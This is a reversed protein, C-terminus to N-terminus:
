VPASTQIFWILTRGSGECYGRLPGRALGRLTREARALTAVREEPTETVLPPILECALVYTSVATERSIALLQRLIGGIKGPEFASAARTHQAHEAPTSQLFVLSGALSRAQFTWPTEPAPADRHHQVKISAVRKEADGNILIITDFGAPLASSGRGRSSDGYGAHHIVAVTCRFIEKLAKVFELLYNADIAKNEDLGVMMKHATDLVILRVPRGQARARVQEIFEEKEGAFGIVPARGVYFGSADEIGHGAKWARRRQKGIEQEGELAGYFTIGAMPQLTCWPTNTSICLAMGQTLFSKFEGKKGVILVSAGLPLLTPILWTTEDGKEQEAEDKFHFRSRKSSEGQGVQELIRWNEITSAPPVGWAGAENQSYQSANDVIRRLEQESWPPRCSNNWVDWLLRFGTGPTLGCNLIECALQYTRNNGGCGAIAVDGRGVYASLLSAARTVNGRLDLDAVAAGAADARAALKATCWAPLAVPDRDDTISYEKGDVMSGPLLVYGGIGRTDIHEGLAGVTSRGQGSYYRHEGGRPTRVTYTEPLDLQAAGPDKDVVLMGVRGPEFAWNCDPYEEIWRDIQEIQTTADKFGNACAPKKTGALCPFIPINASAWAKATDNRSTM